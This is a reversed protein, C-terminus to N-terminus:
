LVKINSDVENAGSNVIVDLHIIFDKLAKIGELEVDCLDGITSSWGSKTKILRHHGWSEKFKMTIIDFIKPDPVAEFKIINDGTAFIIDDKEIHWTIYSEPHIQFIPYSYDIIKILEIKYDSGEPINRYLTDLKERATAEEHSTCGREQTMNKLSEMKSSSKIPVKRYTDKYVKTGSFEKQEDETLSVCLTYGNKTCLGLWSEINTGLLCSYNKPYEYMLWGRVRLEHALRLKAVRKISEYKYNIM